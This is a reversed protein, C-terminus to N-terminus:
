DLPRGVPVVLLPVEDAALGAARRVAEDAFAGIPVAGLGLATAQLLMGQSAAGAELLVYRRARPGYKRATRAEVGAIVLVVPARPVFDQVAGDLHPRRDVSVVRELAHGAPRYRYAGASLRDVRGVLVQIELPYLAGASPTTRRGERDNVGQAAWLLQSLESLRLPAESWSRVSRRAALAGELSVPGELRAEPLTVVAGESPTASSPRLLAIALLLSVDAIV